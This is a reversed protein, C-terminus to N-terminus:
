EDVENDILAQEEPTMKVIGGKKACPVCIVRGAGWFGGRGADLFQGCKRCLAPNELIIFKGRV